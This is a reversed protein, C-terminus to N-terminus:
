ARVRKERERESCERSWEDVWRDIWEIIWRIDVLRDVYRDLKANFLPEANWRSLYLLCQCCFRHCNRDSYHCDTMKLCFCLQGSIDRMCAAYCAVCISL